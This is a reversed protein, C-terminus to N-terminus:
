GCSSTWSPTSPPSPPTRRGSCFFNCNPNSFCWYLSARDRVQGEHHWGCHHFVSIGFIWGGQSAPPTGAACSGNKTGLIQVQFHCPLLALCTRESHRREVLKGIKFRNANKTSRWWWSQHCIKKMEKSFFNGKGRWQLMIRTKQQHFCM